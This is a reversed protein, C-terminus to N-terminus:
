RSFGASESFWGHVAQLGDGEFRTFGHGELREEMDKESLLSM